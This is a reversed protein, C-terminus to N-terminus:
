EELKDLLLNFSTYLQEVQSWEDAITVSYIRGQYKNTNEKKERPLPGSLMIFVGSREAKNYFINKEVMISKLKEYTLSEAVFIDRIAIQYKLDNGFISQLKTFYTSMTFRVNIDVAPFIEDNAIFGDIGVIGKIGDNYLIEGICEASETILETYKEDLRTPFFSGSYVLQRIIQDSIFFLDIKGDENIYIQYNFNSANEYFGELIVPTNSKKMYYKYCSNIQKKDDIVFSGKGSAGYPKKLIAREFGLKRLKDFNKELQELDEVIFSEPYNIGNSILLDRIHIKNNKFQLNNNYYLCSYGNLDAYEKIKEDAAYAILCYDSRNSKSNKTILDSIMSYNYTNLVIYQSVPFGLDRLTNIYSMEPEKRLVVYDQRKALLFSLEEINNLFLNSNVYYDFSNDWLNEVGLNCIWIYTRDNSLINELRKIIM